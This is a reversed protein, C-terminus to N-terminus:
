PAVHPHVPEAATGILHHHMNGALHEEFFCLSELRRLNAFSRNQLSIRLVLAPFTVEKSRKGETTADGFDSQRGM